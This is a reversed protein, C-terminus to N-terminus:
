VNIKAGLSSYSSRRELEIRVKIACNDKHDPNLVMLSLSCGLLASVHLSPLMLILEPIHSPYPLFDM